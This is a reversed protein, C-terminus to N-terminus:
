IGRPPHTLLFLVLILVFLLIVFGSLAFLRWPASAEAALIVRNDGTLRKARFIAGGVCAVSAMTFIVDVAAALRPHGARTLIYRKDWIDLAASQSSRSALLILLAFIGTLLLRKFLHDSFLRKM